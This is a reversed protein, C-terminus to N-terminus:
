SSSPVLDESSQRGVVSSVGGAGRSWNAVEYQVWGARALLEMAAEYLDATADEDPVTLIGRAVADAMPTGSEVILSYLSLHEPAGDWGLVTELDRRWDDLTQGPWGFILDLSVNGFGASRAAQLASW